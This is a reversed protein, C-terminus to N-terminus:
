TSPPNGCIVQVNMGAAIGSSSAAGENAVGELDRAADIRVVQARAIARGDLDAPMVHAFEIVVKETAGRELGLDCGVCTIREAPIPVHEIGPTV